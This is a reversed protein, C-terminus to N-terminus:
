YRNSQRVRLLDLFLARPLILVLSSGNGFSFSHPVQIKEIELYLEISNGM